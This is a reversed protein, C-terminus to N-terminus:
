KITDRKITGGDKITLSIVTSDTKIEVNDFDFGEKFWEGKEDVKSKDAASEMYVVVIFNRKTSKRLTTHEHHSFSLDYDVGQDLVEYDKYKNEVFTMIYNTLSVGDQIEFLIYFAKNNIKTKNNIALRTVGDRYKWGIVEKMQEVITDQLAIGQAIEISSTDQDISSDTRSINAQSIIPRIPTKTQQSYNESRWTLHNVSSDTRSSDAQSNTASILMKTRQTNDVCGWTLICLIIIFFKTTM